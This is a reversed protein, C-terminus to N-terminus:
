AEIRYKRNNAHNGNKGCQKNGEDADEQGAEDREGIAACTAREPDDDKRGPYEVEDEIDMDAVCAAASQTAMLAEDEQIVHRIQLRQGNKRQRRNTKQRSGLHTLTREGTPHGLLDPRDEDLPFVLIRSKGRTIGNLLDDGLGLIRRQHDERFAPKARSIADIGKMGATKVAGDLGAHGVQETGDLEITRIDADPLPRTALRRSLAM